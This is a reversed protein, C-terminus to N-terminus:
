FSFCLEFRGTEWDTALNALGFSVSRFKEYQKIRAESERKKREDSLDPLLRQEQLVIFTLNFWFRGWDGNNLALKKKSENVSLVAHFALLKIWCRM